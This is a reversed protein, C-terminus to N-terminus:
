RDVPRVVERSAHRVSELGHVDGEVPFGAAGHGGM